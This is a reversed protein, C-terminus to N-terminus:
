TTQVKRATSGIPLGCSVVTVPDVTGPEAPHGYSVPLSASNCRLDVTQLTTTREQPGDWPCPGPLLTEDLAGDGPSLRAIPGSAAAGGPTESNQGWRSRDTPAERPGHLRVHEKFVSCLVFFGTRAIVAVAV